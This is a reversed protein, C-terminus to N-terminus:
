VGRMHLRNYPLDPNLTSKHHSYLTIEEPVFTCVRYITEVTSFKESDRVFKGEHTQSENIGIKLIRYLELGRSM